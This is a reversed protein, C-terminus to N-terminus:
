SFVPPTLLPFFTILSPTYLLLSFYVHTIVYWLGGGYPEIGIQQYNESNVTFNPKLQQPGLTSFYLTFAILLAVSPIVVHACSRQTYRTNYIHTLTNVYLHSMHTSNTYTHTTHIRIHQVHTWRVLCLTMGELKSFWYTCWRHQLWQWNAVVFTRLWYSRTHTHHRTHTHLPGPSSVYKGGVAFAVITSQNRTFFYKGGLRMGMLNCTAVPFSCVSSINVFRAECEVQGEWSHSWFRCRAVLKKCHRIRVFTLSQLLRNGSVLLM